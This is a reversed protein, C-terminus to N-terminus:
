RDERFRTGITPQSSYLCSTFRAPFEETFFFFFTLAACAKDVCVGLARPECVSFDRRAGFIVCKGGKGHHCKRFIFLYIFLLSLRVPQPARCWKVGCKYLSRSVEFGAGQVVVCCRERRSPTVCHCRPFPRQEVSLFQHLTQTHTQTRTGSALSM